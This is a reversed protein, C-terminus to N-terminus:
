LRDSPWRAPFLRSVLPNRKPRIDVKTSFRPKPLAFFDVEAPAAEVDMTAVPVEPTFAEFSGTSAAATVDLDADVESAVIAGFSALAAASTVDLDAEAENAAEFQATSAVATVDLDADVAQEDSVAEFSAQAAAATVDVDAEVGGAEFQAVSAPSTVDVDADVEEGLLGTFSSQAPPATVDMTAELSDEAPGESALFTDGYVVEDVTAGDWFITVFLRSATGPVSVTESLTLWESDVTNFTLIDNQQDIGDENRWRFEVEVARSAGAKFIAASIGFDQGGTISTGPWNSQQVAVDTGTATIELSGTGTNAQDTTKAITSGFWTQWIGTGAGELDAQQEPMVNTDYGWVGIISTALALTDWSATTSMEAPAANVIKYGSSMGIANATLATQIGEGATFGDSYSDEEPPDGHRTAMGMIAVAQAHHPKIAGSALSTTETVGNDATEWGDGQTDFFRWTGGPTDSTLEYGVTAKGTTASFDVNINTSQSAPVIRWWMVIARRASSNAIETEILRATSWGSGDISPTLSGDRHSSYVVQLNGETSSLTLQNTGSGSANDSAVLSVTM